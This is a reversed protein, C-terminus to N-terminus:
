SVGKGQEQGPDHDPCDGQGPQAQQQGARPPGGAAAAGGAAPSALLPRAAGHPGGFAGPERSGGPLWRRTDAPPSGHPRTPQRSATSARAPPDPQSPTLTTTLGTLLIDPRRQLEATGDYSALIPALGRLLPFDDAPQRHPGPRPQDHTEDPTATLEQPEDPIHGHPFGPLARYTHLADPRTFGAPTLLALIDELPRPTRPAPARAPHGAAPHRDAPRPAPPGPGPRPLPPRGAAAPRGPRPRRLRRLAPGPRDRRRPRAPGGQQTRAPLPDDPGPGPRPGPPASTGDRDTTQPAAPLV